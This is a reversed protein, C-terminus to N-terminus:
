EEVWFKNPAFDIDTVHLDRMPHHYDRGILHVIHSYTGKFIEGKIYEQGRCGVLAGRELEVLQDFRKLFRQTM